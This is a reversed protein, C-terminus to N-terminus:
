DRKPQPIIINFTTNTLIKSEIWIQGKLASVYNKVGALAIARLLNKRNPTDVIRYPDFMSELESESLLFTSSMISIMIYDSPQVGRVHLLEVSPVSVHISVDGMDVAKLIVELISQLVKKLITEDTVITSKLGEEASINWKLNKGTYLQENYRVIYNIANLIEFTKFEINSLGLETGSLELLKDMFYMLDTSNKKIIKIYKEQQESVGGGLGDSMAQSFGVISQLPSKIDNMLKILFLNKDKSASPNETTNSNGCVMNKDPVDRLDLVYGEEIEKVTMNFYIESDALKTIVQKEYVIANSIMNLANEIFGSIHSTLLHMKSTNFLEAAKDNAWQIKGDKSCFVVGDPLAKDVDIATSKFLVKKFDM